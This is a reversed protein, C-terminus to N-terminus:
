QGSDAPPRSEQETGLAATGLSHRFCLKYCSPCPIAMVLLQFLELFLM